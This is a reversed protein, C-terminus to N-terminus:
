FGPIGSVGQSALFAPLVFPIVVLPLILFSLTIISSWLFYKRMKEASKYTADLKQEIRDLQENM